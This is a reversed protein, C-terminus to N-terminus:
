TENWLDYKGSLVTADKTLDGTYHLYFPEVKEYLPALKLYMKFFEVFDGERTGHLEFVGVTDHGSGIVTESDGIFLEEFTMDYKKGDMKFYGDWEASWLILEAEYEGTICDNAFGRIEEKTTGLCVFLSSILQLITEGEAVIGLEPRCM